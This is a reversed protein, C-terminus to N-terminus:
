VLEKSRKVKTSAFSLLVILVVISLLVSAHLWSFENTIYTMLNSTTQASNLKTVHENYIFSPVTQSKVSAVQQIVLLATAMKRVKFFLYICTIFSLFGIGLAVFILIANTDPWDEALTIDGTLLPETLTQFIQEDKKAAQAM